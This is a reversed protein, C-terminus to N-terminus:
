HITKLSEGRRLFPLPSSLCGGNYKFHPALHQDIKFYGKKLCNLSCIHKRIVRYIQLNYLKLILILGLKQYTIIFM